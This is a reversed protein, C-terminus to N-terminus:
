FRAGAIAGGPQAGHCEREGGAAGGFLHDHIVGGPQGPDHVEAAQFEVGMGHAGAVQIMGVFHAHVEIGTRANAPVVHAAHGHFHFRQEFFHAQAAPGLGAARAAHVDIDANMGAPSEVLHPAGRQGQRPGDLAADGSQGGGLPPLFLPM